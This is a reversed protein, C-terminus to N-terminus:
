KAPSSLFASKLHAKRIDNIYFGEHDSPVPVMNLLTQFNAYGNEPNFLDTFSVDRFTPLTNFGNNLIRIYEYRSGSSSFATDKPGIRFKNSEAIKSNWEKLNNNKTVANFTM